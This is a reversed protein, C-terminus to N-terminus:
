IAALAKEMLPRAEGALYAIDKNEVLGFVTDPDLMEVAIKGGAVERVVVNCPLLLGITPEGEMARAAISPNCAGLIIHPAVDKNLKKKLTAKVDIEMLIGFGVAALEKRTKEVVQAYEGDVVKGFGYRNKMVGGHIDHIDHIYREM